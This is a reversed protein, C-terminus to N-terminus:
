LLFLNYNQVKKSFQTQRHISFGQFVVPTSLPTVSYTLRTQAGRGRGMRPNKGKYRVSYNLLLNVIVQKKQKKTHPKVLRKITKITKRSLLRKRLVMNFKKKLPLSHVKLQRQKSVM